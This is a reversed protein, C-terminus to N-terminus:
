RDHSKTFDLDKQSKTYYWVGFPKLSKITPHIAIDGNRNGSRLITGPHRSGGQWVDLAKEYCWGGKAKRSNISPYPQAEPGATDFGLSPERDARLGSGVGPGFSLTWIRHARPIIPM